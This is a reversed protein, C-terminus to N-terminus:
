RRRGMLDVDLANGYDIRAALLVVPVSSGEGLRVGFADAASAMSNLHVIGGASQEMIITLIPSAGAACRREPAQWEVVALGRQM